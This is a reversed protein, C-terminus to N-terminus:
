GVRTLLRLAGVTEAAEFLGSAVAHRYIECPPRGGDAPDPFVDHIALMGGPAVAVAWARWDGLATKLAHGGDILVLGFPGRLLHAAVRSDAVLAVVADELGARRVADRFAPLTDLAGAAEDWLEHDHWEWGPQHEESGRHHDVSVLVTGAARAAPGLYLASRGCYAGVEVIPGLGGVRRAARALAEGEERSLFGRVSEPDILAPRDLATM